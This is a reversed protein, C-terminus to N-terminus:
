FHGGFQHHDVLHAEIRTKWQNRLMAKDCISHIRGLLRMNPNHVFNSNADEDDEDDDRM